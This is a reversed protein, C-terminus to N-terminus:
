GGLRNKLKLFYSEFYKYSVSSILVTLLISIICIIIEVLLNVKNGTCALVIKIAPVVTLSHFIYIGYSIKGLYNLVRNELHFINKPNISLNIILIIFFISFAQYPLTDKMFFIAFLFVVYFVVQAAVSFIYQLIAPRYIAIMAGAAGIAMADIKFSYTGAFFKHIILLINYITGNAAIIGTKSLLGAMKAIAGYSFCFVLVIIIGIFIEPRKRKMIHPWILYYQEEVGISWLPNAYGLSPTFLLAVNPCIIVLLFVYLAKSIHIENNDTLGHWSYFGLRNFILFSVIILLYYLPWIRLIRKTYFAKVSIPKVEKEKLLLYTILFGSLVFFLVVAMEGFNFPFIKYPETKYQNMVLCLDVHFLLVLTAAIFRLGDLNPLKKM